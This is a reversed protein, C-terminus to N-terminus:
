CVKPFGKSTEFRSAENTSPKCNADRNAYYISTQIHPVFYSGDGSLGYRSNEWRDASRSQTVSQVRPRRRLYFSVKNATISAAFQRRLISRNSHVYLEIGKHPTSCRRLQKNCYGRTKQLTFPFQLRTTWAQSIYTLRLAILIKGCHADCWSFTKFMKFIGGDHHLQILGIM